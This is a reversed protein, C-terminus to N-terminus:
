LELKGRGCNILVTIGLGWEPITSIKTDNIKLIWIWCLEFTNIGLIYNKICIMVHMNFEVGNKYMYKNFKVITNECTYHFLFIM